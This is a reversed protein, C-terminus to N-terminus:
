IEEYTETVKKVRKKIATKHKKKRRGNAKKADFEKTFIKM